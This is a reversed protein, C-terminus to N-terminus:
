SSAKLGFDHRRDIVRKLMGIQGCHWMTHKINWDLAEAKIKAIPHPQDTPELPQQLEDPSLSKIISLSKHQMLEFHKILDNSQFKGVADIPKATNFSQSYERVPMKQIIDMQHGKIVMVSHYYYSLLLHGVQWTLNTELGGPLEDWKALPIPAVLKNVWEYAETTQKTLFEVENM